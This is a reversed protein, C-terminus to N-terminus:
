NHQIKLLYFKTGGMRFEKHGFAPNRSSSQDYIASSLTAYKAGGIRLEFYTCQVYRDVPLVRSFPASYINRMHPHKWHNDHSNWRIFSRSIVLKNWSIKWACKNKDEGIFYFIWNHKQLNWFSEIKEYIDTYGSASRAVWKTRVAFHCM